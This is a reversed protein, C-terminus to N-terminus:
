FQSTITTATSTLATEKTSIQPNPTTHDSTPASQGPQKNTRPTPPPIELPTTQIRSTIKCPQPSTQQPTPTSSSTPIPTALFSASSIPLNEKNAPSSKHLLNSRLDYPGLKGELSKYWKNLREIGRIDERVRAKKATSWQHKGGGHNLLDEVQLMQQDCHPEPCAFLTVYRSHRSVWHKRVTQFFKHRLYPM